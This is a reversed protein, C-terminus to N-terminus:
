KELDNGARNLASFVALLAVTLALLPLFSIGALDERGLMINRYIETALTNEGEPLLLKACVLENLMGVCALVAGAAAGRLASGNAKGHVGGLYVPLPLFLLTEALLPLAVGGYLMFPRNGLALLLAASLAPAQVFVPYLSGNKLTGADLRPHNMWLKSIGWGLLWCVCGVIGAALLSNWLSPSLWVDLAQGAFNHLGFAGEHIFAQAATMGLPLVSLASIGFCFIWSVASGCGAEARNLENKRSLTFPERRNIVVCVAFLFTSIILSLLSAGQFVGRSGQVAQEYILVPLTTFSGGLLRPVSFDTFALSFVLVAGLKFGPVALPGSDPSVGKPSRIVLFLLGSLPLSLALVCGLFGTLGPLLLRWGYAHLFTGSACSLLLLGRVVAGGPMQHVAFCRRMGLAIASSVVTVCGALLLSHFMAKFEYSQALGGSGKGATSWVFYLIPGFLALSLLGLGLGIGLAVSGSFFLLIVAILVLGGGAGLLVAQRPMTFREFDSLEGLLRTMRNKARGAANLNKGKYDEPELPQPTRQGTVYELWENEPMLARKAYYGSQCAGILGCVAAALGLFLLVGATLRLAFHGGRNARM